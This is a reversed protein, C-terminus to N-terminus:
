NRRHPDEPLRISRHPSKRYYRQALAWAFRVSNPWTYGARAHDTLPPRLNVARPVDLSQWQSHGDVSVGVLLM